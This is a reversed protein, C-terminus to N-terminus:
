RVLTRLMRFLELLTRNAEKGFSRGSDTSTGVTTIGRRDSPGDLGGMLRDSGGRGLDWVTRGVIGAGRADGGGLGVGV